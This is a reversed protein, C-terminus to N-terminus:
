EHNDGVNKYSFQLRTTPLFIKMKLSIQMIRKNLKQIIDYAM